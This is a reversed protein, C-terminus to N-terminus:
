SGTPTPKDKNIYDTAVKGAIWAGVYIGAFTGDFHGTVPLYIFIYTSAIFAGFAGFKAMTVQKLQTDILLYKLDIPSERDTQATWLIWCFMFLLFLGIWNLAPVSLMLGVFYWFRDPSTWAMISVAAVICASVMGAKAVAEWSVAAPRSVRKFAVPKV